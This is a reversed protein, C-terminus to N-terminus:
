RRGRAGLAPRRGQRVAPGRAGQGAVGPGLVAVGQDDLFQTAFPDAAHVVDGGLHACWRRHGNDADLSVLDPAAKAPMTAVLYREDSADYASRKTDVQVSWRPKLTTDDLMTFDPNDRTRM